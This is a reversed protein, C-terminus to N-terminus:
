IGTNAIKGYREFVQIMVDPDAIVKLKSGPLFEDMVVCFWLILLRWLVNMYGM